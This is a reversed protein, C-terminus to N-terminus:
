LQCRFEAVYALGAFDHSVRALLEVFDTAIELREARISQQVPQGAGLPRVGIAHIFGHFLRDQIVAQREGRMPRKAHRLLQRQLAHLDTGATHASDPAPMIKQGPVVSQQPKLSRRLFAPQFESVLLDTQQLSEARLEPLPVDLRAVGAVQHRDVGKEDAGELAHAPDVQL